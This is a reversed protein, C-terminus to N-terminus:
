RISFPFYKANIRNYTGNETISELAANFKERLADDEKRVAIGAGEGFIEPDKVDEGRFECCQGAKTNTLWDYAALKDELIVDLKGDVLNQYLEPSSVFTTIEADPHHARAFSEQVTALAAGLKKGALDAPTFDRLGSTKATVFGSPGDYYRASFAVQERREASMTMSSIIADYEGALLGPIMADWDQVVLSCEAAMTECLAKAIEVDFGQLEGNADLYNFPPFNGEVAIEIASDQARALTSTASVFAAALIAATLTRVAIRWHMMNITVL